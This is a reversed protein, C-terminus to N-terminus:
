VNLNTSLITFNMKLVHNLGSGLYDTREYKLCTMFKYIGLAKM